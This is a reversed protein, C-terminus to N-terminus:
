APLAPLTIRFTTGEAPTSVCAISGKHEQIIGHSISLGLGTGEGVRKTTFFPDFVRPLHEPAIGVGNDRIEVVITGGELRSSVAIRGSGKRPSSHIADRANILINVFVQELRHSDGQLRPNSPALDKTVTVNRTRLQESLLTFSKEIVHNIHIAVFENAGQHSFDRLHHIIRNMRAANDQIEKLYDPVKEPLDKGHKEFVARIRSAFGQVLFLPQNIEHAIGASLEGLSALKASQVLQQQTKRLEQLLKSDRADKASFLMGTTAGDIEVISQCSLLAPIQRGDKGVIQCDYERLPNERATALLAPTSAKAVASPSANQGDRSPEVCCVLVQGVLLGTIEERSYGLLKLANDNVKRIIGAADTVILVDIMSHIINDTYAMSFHLREVMKNFSHALLGLEDNRRVPVKRLSGPSQAISKTALTLEKIPNLIQSRLRVLLLAILAMMLFCVAYNAQSVKRMFGMRESANRKLFLERLYTDDDFAPLIAHKLNHQIAVAAKRAREVEGKQYEHIVKGVETIFFDIKLLYFDTKESADLPFYPNLLQESLTALSSIQAQLEELHARVDSVLFSKNPGALLEECEDLTHSILARVTSIKKEQEYSAVLYQYTSHMRSMSFLLTSVMSLLAALTFALILALKRTVTQPTIRKDM